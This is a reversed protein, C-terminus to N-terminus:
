LLGNYKRTFWETTLSVALIILLFIWDILPSNKILSKEVPLYTDKELLKQILKDIQNPHIVEGKNQNALQQLKSVDPNVFQKEVDFDLVEFTGNYSANSTSEKVKFAYNGPELGDFIAQYGNNAKSFNYNKTSKTNKNTLNISLNANEELEYSKNFYQAFIEITEGSNYFSEHEVLLSKKASNTSLYQIIKDIFQDYKEYSQNIVHSEMRWKWSNEGLLYASRSNGKESFTLIPNGVDIGNVKATLLTNLNGKETIKGFPNELPPLQAFQIDNQAFLNFGTLFSSTFDEKKNTLRFELDSQMQNLLNFDTSMGTITFTNIRLNKNAEFVKRFSATPQYLVLLNYKKLDSVPNTKLLTVKRQANSEIARKLAGLDPHSIDSIIAIEKRQDIVEVAFNKVNNYTNKEKTASSIVAKYKQLGVRDAELLIQVSQVKIKKDFNIAQSSIKKGNKEISFNASIAKSGNYQLFVEVPFKNKLFAYKNANLQNIKIDFTTTTDGLVVPFVNATEQFSYVYDNGITQNGDTLLVVPYFTNKNLQKLNTAVNDINSQNGKFDLPKGAFFEEDFSYTQIEFKEKLASNSTLKEFVEKEVDNAKLESISRSNDAVIALPIKNTEISKRSIVPNILLLLLSFVSIFRLFALLWNTKNQNDAKFLYQYFAVAGSIIVSLLILLITSTTM